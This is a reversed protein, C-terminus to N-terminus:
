INTIIEPTSTNCDVRNHERLVESRRFRLCCDGRGRRLANPSRSGHGQERTEGDRTKGIGPSTARQQLPRSKACPPVRREVGERVGSPRTSTEGECRPLRYRATCRGRRRKVRGM